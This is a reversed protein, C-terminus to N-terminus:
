LFAHFSLGGFKAYMHLDNDNAHLFNGMILEQEFYNIHNLKHEQLLYIISFLIHTPFYENKTPHKYISHLVQM